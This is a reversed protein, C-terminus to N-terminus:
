LNNVPTTNCWEYLWREAPVPRIIGIIQVLRFYQGLVTGTTFEPWSRRVVSIEVQTYAREGESTDNGNRGENMPINNNVM